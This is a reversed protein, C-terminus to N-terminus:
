SVRRLRRQPVATPDNGRFAARTLLNEADKTYRPIMVKASQPTWGAQKRIEESDVGRLKADITFARRFQHATVHIGLKACRRELMSAIADPRLYGGAESGSLTSAFLAADDDSGRKRLYRDIWQRTEELVTLERWKPPDGKGLVWLTGEAADYKVREARACESMRPGSWYMLSCIAANRCDLTKRKDFSSMVRRYDAESIRRIRDIHPDSVTPAEIGEMPGRGEQPVWRGRKKVDPLEGEKVLWEYFWCLDQWDKHVTAGVVETKRHNIFDACDDGTVDTIAVGRAALFRSWRNLRSVANDIGRETWDKRRLYSGVLPDIPQQKPRHPM